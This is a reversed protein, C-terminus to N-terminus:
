AACPKVAFAPAVVSEDFEVEAREVGVLSKTITDGVCVGDGERLCIWVADLVYALM